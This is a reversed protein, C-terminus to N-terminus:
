LINKNGSAVRFDGAGEVKCEPQVLRTDLSGVVRNQVGSQATLPGAVLLLALGFKQGKIM